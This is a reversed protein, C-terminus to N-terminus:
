SASVTGAGKGEYVPFLTDLMLLEFTEKVFGRLPKVMVVGEKAKARKYCTLIKGIGLSNIIEVGQLDLVITKQGKQDFLKVFAERLAECAAENDLDGAVVIIGRDDEIHTAYEVEM